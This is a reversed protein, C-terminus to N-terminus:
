RKIDFMLNNEREKIEQLLKRLKEHKKVIKLEIEDLANQDSHIMKKNEEILEYFTKKKLRGM